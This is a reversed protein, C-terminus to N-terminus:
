VCLHIHPISPFRGRMENKTSTDLSHLASHNLSHHIIFQFPNPLFLEHGLRPVIRSNPQLFRRFGRFRQSSLRHETRSDFGAGELFSDLDKSSCWRTWRWFQVSFVFNVSRGITVPLCRTTVVLHLSSGVGKGRNSDQSRLTAISWTVYTQIGDQIAVGPTDVCSSNGGPM